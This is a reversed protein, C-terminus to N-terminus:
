GVASRRWHVLTYPPDASDHPEFVADVTAGIDVEQFPDGLLNGVMRVNDYDPLEVLVVVYPGHGNLASHV